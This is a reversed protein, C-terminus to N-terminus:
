RAPTSGSDGRCGQSMREKGHQEGQPLNVLVSAPMPPCFVQLLSVRFHARLRAFPVFRLLRRRPTEGSAGTMTDTVDPSACVVKRLAAASIQGRVDALPAAGKEAVARWESAM